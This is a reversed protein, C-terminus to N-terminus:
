GVQSSLSAELSWLETHHAHFFEMGYRMADELDDVEVDLLRALDKRMNEDLCARLLLSASFVSFRVCGHALYAFRVAVEDGGWGAERLGRLYESFAVEEFAAVDSRKVGDLAVTPFVLGALDEGYAGLGSFAWDIAITTQGVAFLNRRFADLHCFCQPLSEMKALLINTERWIREIEGLTETTIATAAAPELISTRYQEYEPRVASEHWHRLWQRSMGPWAAEARTEPFRANFQGLHYATLGLRHVSWQEPEDDEIESMWLWVENGFDHVALCPAAQLGGDLLSLFGSEYADVERRWYRADSPDENGESARLRKIILTWPFVGKGDTATGKLLQVTQGGAGGSLAEVTWKGLAVVDRDLAQRIMPILLSADIRDIQSPDVNGSHSDRVSAGRARVDEAMLVESDTRHAGTGHTFSLM